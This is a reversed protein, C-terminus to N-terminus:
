PKLFTLVIHTLQICVFAFEQIVINHKNKFHGHPCLNNSYKCIYHM